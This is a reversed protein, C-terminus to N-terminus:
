LLLFFVFSNNYSGRPPDSCKERLSQQELVVDFEKRYYEGGFLNNEMKSNRNNSFNSFFFVMVVM